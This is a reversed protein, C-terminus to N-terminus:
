KTLIRLVKIKKVRLKEINGPLGGFCVDERKVEVELCVLDHKPGCLGVFEPRIGVRFVHLGVDCQQDSVQAEPVSMTKGIEYQIVEADGWGPSKLDKTVWKWYIGTEPLNSIFYKNLDETTQNNHINAYDGIKAYNGIKANNGINAGDGIKAVKGITARNGIKAGDGIKARNGITAFDGIKAYDGIKANNGITARNGIKFKNGNPLTRWGNKDTVLNYYDQTTM